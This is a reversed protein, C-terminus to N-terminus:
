SKGKRKAPALSVQELGQEAVGFYECTAAVVAQLPFTWDGASAIKAVTAWKSAKVAIGDDNVIGKKNRYKSRLTGYCAPDIHELMKMMSQCCFQIRRDAAAIGAMLVPFVIPFLVSSSDALRAGVVQNTWIKFSAEVIRVSPSRGLEAYLTFIPRVLGQFYQPAVMELLENTWNIWSVFRSSRTRPWRAIVEKVFDPVMRPQNASLIELIVILRDTWSLLHQSSILPIISHHYIHLKIRDDRDCKASGFRTGFFQLIPDAVFPDISGSRYQDLLDAFKAWLSLERDPYVEAYKMFFAAILDRENGDPAHLQDMMKREFALTFRADKPLANFYALFLDYILGLHQWERDMVAPETDAIMFTRKIHPLPRFVNKEFMDFFAGALTAPMAQLFATNFVPKMSQLLKKKQAKADRDVCPNAAIPIFNCIEIAQALSAFAADSPEKTLTPNPPLVMDVHDHLPCYDQAWIFNPVGPDFKTLECECVAVVPAPLPALTPKRASHFALKMLQASTKSLDPPAFSSLRPQSYRQLM